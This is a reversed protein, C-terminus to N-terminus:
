GLYILFLFLIQIKKFVKLSHGQVAKIELIGDATTRLAFRKKDNNEVIRLIDNLNCQGHLSRSNLIQQVNVFGDSSIPIKEKVAGHRLIWSM